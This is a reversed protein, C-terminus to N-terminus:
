FGGGYFYLGVAIIVFFVAAMILISSMFKGNDAPLDGVIKGTEGNVAFLYNKGRYKTSLLWVPLFAYVAKGSTRSIDRRVPFVSSYGMTTSMLSSYATNVMRSDAHKEAEDASVDYSDAMYGAMYVSTFDTLKEYDFPELAEMYEDPMKTSADAPVREYSVTGRRILRYHRTETVVDDGQRYQRVREATCILDAHLTADYLWYPVYVGKVEELHNESSFASPLFPKGKYFARLKDVAQEKTVTFPLVYQPKKAKFQAAVVTPNGCYPCSTVATNADAFLQAGCSPCSYAKMGEAEAGWDGADEEFGVANAAAEEKEKFFNEVELPTFSSDCYECHLKQLSPDFKLPGGCNPCQYNALQDAM